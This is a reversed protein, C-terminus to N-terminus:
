ENELMVHYENKELKVVFDDKLRIKTGNYVSTNVTVNGKTASMLHDKPTHAGTLLSLELLKVLPTM